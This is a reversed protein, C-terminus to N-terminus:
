NRAFFRPTSSNCVMRPSFETSFHGVDTVLSELSRTQQLEILLFAM